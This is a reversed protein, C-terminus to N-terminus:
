SNGMEDFQVFLMSGSIVLITETKEPNMHRHPTIYTGPQLANFMKHRRRIRNISVSCCANALVERSMTLLNGVM